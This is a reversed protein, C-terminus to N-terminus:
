IGLDTLAIAPMKLEGVKDVLKKIHVTSQLVSFQSFMYILLNLVKIDIDFTKQSPIEAVNKKLEKSRLKESKAKLNQHKLGIPSITEQNELVFDEMQKTDINLEEIGFHGTRILELFVGQPLKLMQLQM